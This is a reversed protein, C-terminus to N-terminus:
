ASLPQAGVARLVSDWDGIAPQRFLRASRYWPSDNRERLWRWDPSFPLLIWVKKGMAGALHAVSTDVTIVCDMCEVLAATDNFDQLEEGFYRIETQAALEAQDLPRVENQLCFYDVRPQLVAKFKELAISRRRDQAHAAGGSWALGVRTRRRAGLRDAWMRVKKPDAWLYPQNPINDLDAGLALPLSLLPCHFDLPLLNEGQALVCALGLQQLLGTLAPQVELIVSAGSQALGRAYRCFQLTDGLGQEAHLLIAKGRLDQRGLWLPVGFERHPEPQPEMKWRWEYEAWGASFNGALLKCLSANWHVTANHPELALALAHSQQAEELRMLGQLANGRNALAQANAPEILLAQEYYQLAQEARQLDELVTGSNILADAYAPRIALAREFNGLAEELRGLDQLAKGCGNLAQAYSPKVKLAAGFSSLAHDARDLELLVEGRNFLVEAHGPRIKLAQDYSALAAESHKLERLAIGRNNLADVYDPKLCIAKDYSLLAEDLRGLNRLAIGRNNHSAAHEPNIALAQDFLEVASASQNRQAAITALLQLADFHRPQQQLIERYVAEALDLQGRQHLALAAKMRSTADRAAAQSPYAKGPAM